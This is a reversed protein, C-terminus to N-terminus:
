LKVSSKIKIAFANVSQSRTVRGIPKEYKNNIEKRDLGGRFTGSAESSNGVLSQSKEMPDFRPKDGRFEKSTKDGALDKARAKYENDATVAKSFTIPKGDMDKKKKVYNDAFPKLVEPKSGKAGRFIGQKGNVNQRLTANDISKVSFKM